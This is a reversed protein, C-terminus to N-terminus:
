VGKISVVGRLDNTILLLVDDSVHVNYWKMGLGHWNKYTMEIGLGHLSQSMPVNSDSRLM